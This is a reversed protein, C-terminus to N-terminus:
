LWQETSRCLGTFLCEYRKMELARSDCLTHELCLATWRRPLCIIQVRQSFFGRSGELISFLIEGQSAVAAFHISQQFVFDGGPTQRSVASM